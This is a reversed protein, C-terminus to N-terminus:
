WSLTHSIDLMKLLNLMLVAGSFNLTHLIIQEYGVKNDAIYKAVWFGTNYESSDVYVEEGLDHDLFIIDFRQQEEIIDIAEERSYARFIEPNDFKKHLLRTFNNQRIHSDDLIFIKM